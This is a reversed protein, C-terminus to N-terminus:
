KELAKLQHYKEEYALMLNRLRAAEAFNEESSSQLMQKKYQEVFALIEKATLGELTQM